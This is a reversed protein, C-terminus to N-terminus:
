IISGVPVVYGSDPEQDVIQQLMWNEEDNAFRIKGDSSLIAHNLIKTSHDEAVPFVNCERSARNWQCNLGINIRQTKKYGLYFGLGFWGLDVVLILVTVISTSM